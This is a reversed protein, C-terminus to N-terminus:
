CDLVLCARRVEPVNVPRSKAGGGRMLASFLLSAPLTRDPRLVVDARWTALMRAPAYRTDRIGAPTTPVFSSKAVLRLGVQSWRPGAFPTHVADITQQELKTRASACSSLLIHRGREFVPVRHQNADRFSIPMNQTTYESVLQYPM